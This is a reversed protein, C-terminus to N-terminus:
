RSGEELQSLLNREEKPSTSRSQPQRSNPDEGETPEPSSRGEELESSPRRRVTREPSAQKQLMQLAPSLAPLSISLSMSRSRAHRTPKNRSSASELDTDKNPSSPIPEQSTSSPSPPSPSRPPSVSETPFTIIAIKNGQRQGVQPHVAHAWVFRKREHISAIASAFPPVIRSFAEYISGSLSFSPHRHMILKAMSLIPPAFESAQPSASPPPSALLRRPTAPYGYPQPSRSSARKQNQVRIWEQSQKLNRGNATSDLDARPDWADVFEEDDSGRQGAVDGFAIIRGKQSKRAIQARKSDASALRPSHPYATDESDEVLLVLLATFLLAMLGALLFPVYDYFSAPLSPLVTKTFSIISARISSAPASSGAIASPSSLFSPM